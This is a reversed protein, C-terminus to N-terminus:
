RRRNGEPSSTEQQEGDRTDRRLLDQSLRYLNVPLLLCHLVLVPLLDGMYGYAIFSISGAIAVVRLPTMSRMCFTLLVLASALFGIADHASM